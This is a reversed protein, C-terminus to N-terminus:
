IESWTRTEFELKMRLAKLSSTSIRLFARSLGRRRRFAEIPNATLETLKSEVGFDLVRHGGDQSVLGFSELIDVSDPISVFGLLAPPLHLLTRVHSPSAFTLISLSLCREFCRGGVCEASSPIAFSTLSQCSQFALEGIRVIESDVPFPSNALRGCGSFCMRGITKVTSPLIVSELCHDATFAMEPICDLKSGPCFTVSQLCYCNGLCGDGLFTVSSPINIVKLYTCFWFAAREIRYLRSLPGFTVSYVSHCGQFCNMDIQEIEDPIKVERERQLYRLISHHNLDILFGRNEAFHQNGDELEIRCKVDPFSDGTMKEVSSPICIQKLRYCNLFAGPEIERLKSGREFTVTELHSITFSDTFCDKGIFEVSAPICISKLLTCLCFTGTELRRLQSGPEFSVVKVSKTNLFSAKELATVSAPIIMAETNPDLELLNRQESDAM